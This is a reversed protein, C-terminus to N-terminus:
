LNIVKKQSNSCNAAEIIKVVELSMEHSVPLPGQHRLAEFMLNYFELYCGKPSPYLTEENKDKTDTYLSGWDGISEIGYKKDNPSLGNKLQKHQPDTGQKIYSGSDGHIVFRPGSHKVLSSSRLEVKLKNYSLRLYFNDPAEASPRLTSIEAFISRPKGFLTLAQVILNPALEWLAGGYQPNDRWNVQVSPWFRDVRAAYSHITGLRNENLLEKIALYDCDWLRNHFTTMVCNRQNAISVLEEIQASSLALPKEVIIHKSAELAQKAISYHCNNPTAIVVLEIDNDNLIDVVSRQKCGQPLNLSQSSQNTAVAVLEFHENANILPQHLMQGSTGYGIIATRVTQLQRTLQTM